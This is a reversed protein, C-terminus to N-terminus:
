PEQGSGICDYEALLAAMFKRFRGRVTVEYADLRFDSVQAPYAQSTFGATVGDYGRYFSATTVGTVVSSACCDGNGSPGCTSALGACSLPPGCVNTTTNCSPTAGSCDSDSLCGVCQSTTGLDKCKPTEGGCTACTAGCSGDAKCESCLGAGACAKNNGCGTDTPVYSCTGSSCTGSAPYKTAIAATKCVAAPPTSCMVGACPDSGGAFIGGAVGTSRRPM